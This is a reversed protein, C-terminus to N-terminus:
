SAEWSSQSDEQPQQRRSGRTMARERSGEGAVGCHFEVKTEESACWRGRPGQSRKARPAINAATSLMAETPATAMGDANTGPPLPTFREM